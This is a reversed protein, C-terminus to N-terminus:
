VVNGCVGVSDSCRVYFLCAGYVYGITELNRSMLSLLLISRVSGGYMRQESSISAAESKM